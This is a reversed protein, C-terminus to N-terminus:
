LNEKKIITLIESLIPKIRGLCTQLNEMAETSIPKTKLDTQLTTISRFLTHIRAPWNLTKPPEPSKALDLAARPSRLIEQKIGPDPAKCYLDALRRIELPSLQHTQIATSFDPQNCAPIRALSPGGGAPILELLLDDIVEPALRRVMDLRRCIWSKHRDPLIGAETQTLGETDILERVLLAEQIMTFGGSRNLLYMMAKAQKADAEICVAKLAPLSLKVAARYRKFGDVL